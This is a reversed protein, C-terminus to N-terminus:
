LCFVSIFLLPTSFYLSSHLLLSLLPSTFLSLSLSVSLSLSLASFSSFLGINLCVYKFFYIFAPDVWDTKRREVLYTYSSTHVPLPARSPTGGTRPSPGSTRPVIVFCVCVTFLSM